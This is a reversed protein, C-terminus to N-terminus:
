RIKRFHFSLSWKLVRRLCLALPLAVTVGLGAQSGCPKEAGWLHRQQEPGRDEIVEHVEM